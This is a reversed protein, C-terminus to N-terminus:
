FVLGKVDYVELFPMLNEWCYPIEEGSENYIHVVDLTFNKSKNVEHVFNIVGDDNLDVKLSKYVINGDDDKAAERIVKDARGNYDIDVMEETKRTKLVETHVCGVLGLAMAGALALASLTQKLPM